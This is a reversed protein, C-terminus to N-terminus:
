PGTPNESIHKPTAIGFGGLGLSTISPIGEGDKALVLSGPGKVYKRSVTVTYALGGKALNYSVDKVKYELEGTVGSGKMVTKHSEKPYGLAGLEGGPKRPTGWVNWIWVFLHKPAWSLRAYNSGRCLRAGVKESWLRM